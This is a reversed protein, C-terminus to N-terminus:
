NMKKKKDGFESDCIHINSDLDDLQILRDWIDNNNGRSRLNQRNNSNTNIENDKDDLNSINSLNITINKRDNSRYANNKRNKNNKESALVMNVGSTKRTCGSNNMSGLIFGNLALAVIAGVLKLQKHKKIKYNKKM